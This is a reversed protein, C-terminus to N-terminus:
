FGGGTYYRSNKGKRALSVRTKPNPNSSRYSEQQISTVKGIWQERAIQNRKDKIKPSRKQKAWGKAM